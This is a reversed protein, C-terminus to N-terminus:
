ALIRSVAYMYEGFEFDEPYIEPSEHGDNLLLETLHILENSLAAIAAGTLEPAVRQAEQIICQNKATWDGRQLASVLTSSAVEDIHSAQALGNPVLAAILIASLIMRNRVAM